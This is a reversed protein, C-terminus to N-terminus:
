TVILVTEHATHIAVNMHQLHLTNTQDLYQLHQTNAVQAPGSPLERDLLMSSLVNVDRAWGGCRM